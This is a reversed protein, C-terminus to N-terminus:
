ENFEVKAAQATAGARALGDALDKSSVAFAADVNALRNVIDASNIAADNFGNIAATLAQVAEVSGMGSLRTLMMADAIRQLTEDASLGQRAFETAAAAIDNFSSATNRAVDFLAGGFSSLASESMNMIVNIDKLSKQVEIASQAMAKLADSVGNIVSVAAGFAFVRAVAADMSKEFEGMQGTIRGLPQALGKENLQLKIPQIKKEGIKAQNAIDQDLGVAKVRVRINEQAM